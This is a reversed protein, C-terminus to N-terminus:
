FFYRRAGPQANCGTNLHAPIQAPYTNPPSPPPPPPPPCGPRGQPYAHGGDQHPGGPLPGAGGAGGSCAGGRGAQWELASGVPEPFPLQRLQVPLPPPPPPQAAACLLAGWRHGAQGPPGGGEPNGVAGQRSQLVGQIALLGHQPRGCWKAPRSGGPSSAVATHWTAHRVIRRGGEGVEGRASVVQGHAAAVVDSLLRLQLPSM